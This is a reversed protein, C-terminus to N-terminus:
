RCAWASSSCGSTSGPSRWDRPLSRGNGTSGIVRSIPPSCCGAGPLAVGLRVGGAAFSAYGHELSSFQLALGLKDRYFAIAKELDTVFINVYSVQM